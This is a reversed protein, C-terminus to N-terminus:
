ENRRNEPHRLYARLDRYFDEQERCLWDLYDLPIDAFRKGLYRGMPMKTNELRSLPEPMLEYPLEDPPNIHKNITECFSEMFIDEHEGVLDLIEKAMDRGQIRSYIRQRKEDDNIAEMM